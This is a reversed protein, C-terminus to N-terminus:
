RSYYVAPTVNPGFDLLQPVTVLAYGEQILKPIIRKYADVTTQYIDHSLVIAGPKAADIVRNYVTDANKDKWDNPDINWGIFPVALTKALTNNISGYPARVLGPRVGGAKQIADAASNIEGRADDLSMAELDKHDFTHNAIVNGDAVVRKTANPYKQAQIGLEFFTARVNYSKLTDLLQPTTYSPGDDFTLAICKVKACDVGDTSAQPVPGNQVQNAPTLTALLPAPRQALDFLQKAFPQKLVGALSNASLTAAVLGLSVPAVQGPQFIIVLNRNADITFENFNQTTPNTGKDALIQDYSSGLTKSLATRSLESLKNLYNARVTFLDKIQVVQKNKRDYLITRKYQQTGQGAIYQYIKLDVSLYSDNYYNLDHTMNLDGLLSGSSNPPGQVSSIFSNKADNVIKLAANDFNPQDLAPYNIYYSYRNNSDTEQLTYLGVNASEVSKNVTVINKNRDKNWLICSAVGGGILLLFIITFIPLRRKYWLRPAQTDSLESRELVDSPRQQGIKTKKM